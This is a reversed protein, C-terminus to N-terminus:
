YIWCFFTNSRGYFSSGDLREVAVVIAERDLLLSGLVAAEAELYSGQFDLAWARM